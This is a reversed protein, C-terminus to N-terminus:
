TFWNKKFPERGQFILPTKSLRRWGFQASSPHNFHNLKAGFLVFRLTKSLFSSGKPLSLGFVKSVEQKLEVFPIYLEILPKVRSNIEEM